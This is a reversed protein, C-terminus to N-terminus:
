QDVKRRLSSVLSSLASAGASGQNADASVDPVVKATERSDKHKRRKAKRRKTQEELIEKMASTEKFSPDTRDIGFRDDTGEMVAKFREDSIDLKFDTGTVNAALREEKRKRSGRLKKDKNKTIRQIGRMDYDDADDDEGAVLLELEERSIPENPRDVSDDESGEGGAFFSDREKRKPPEKDTGKSRMNNVEHRKERAAKRKERRKEKRKMQYKEWPSLERDRDEDTKALKDRIKTELDNQRGPVFSFTKNEGGEDNSDTDSSLDVHGQEDENDSDLGLMKRMKLAKDDAEDDGDDEDSSNDSALYAKLDDGEAYHKWKEGSVYQTLSSERQTDGAEWTCDVNSQQLANVVFIPPVYNSPISYASDRKPREKVIDEIDDAPILRLDAAASSHEFEMGDVEKYATDAHEASKFEAIAFYYKLKSAEYARLKEPDFGRGLDDPPDDQNQDDSDGEQSGESSEGSTSEDDGDDQDATGKTKKWIGQPGFREEEKLREIGFDSHYVIVSKVAGPATFSSLIAFVDVARVHTWDLNTVALYNSREETHEVEEKTSPDLIGLTGYVSDDSEDNDSDGSSSSEEEHSNADDDDSSSLEIEGRSLARLYAIRNEPSDDQIEDEVKSQSDDSSTSVSEGDSSSSTSKDDVQKASSLQKIETKHPDEQKLEEKEEEVKYFAALEEKSQNKKKIKRGYKDKVNLQFRPDTLVPAFREDIVVKSEDKRAKRFQPKSADFRERLEASIIDVSKKSKDKKKGM